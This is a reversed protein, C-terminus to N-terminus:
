DSYIANYGVKVVTAAVGILVVIDDGKVGSYFGDEGFDFFWPGLDVHRHFDPTTDTTEVYPHIWVKFDQAGITVVVQVRQNLAELDAESAVDVDVWLKYLVGYRDAAVTITDSIQTNDIGQVRKHKKAIRASPHLQTM